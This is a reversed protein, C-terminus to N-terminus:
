VEQRAGHDLRRLRLVLGNPLRLALTTAVSVCTAESLEFRFDKLLRAFVLFIEYNALHFGACKRQGFGFPMFAPNRVDVGGPLFRRHDFTWPDNWYAEHHHLIYPSIFVTAGRGIITDGIQDTEKAERSILPLPPFMRLTENAFAKAVPPAKWARPDSATDSDLLTVLEDAITEQEEPHFALFYAFMAMTTATTEASSLLTIVNCAIDDASIEGKGGDRALRAYEALFDDAPDGHIARHELERFVMERIEDYVANSKGRAQERFLPPLRFFAGLGFRGVGVDRRAHEMSLEIVRDNDGWSIVMECIARLSMRFLEEVIEVEPTQRNAWDAAVDDAFRLMQASGRTLATMGLSRNLSVRQGRWIDDSSFAISNRGFMSEFVRRQQWAIKYRNQGDVLIHRILPIDSCVFIKNFAFSCDSFRDQFLFRPWADIYNESMEKYFSIPNRNWSYPFRKKSLYAHPTNVMSTDAINNTPVFSLASNPQLM